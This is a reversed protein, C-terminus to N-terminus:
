TSKVANAPRDRRTRIAKFLRNFAVVEEATAILPVLSRLWSKCSDPDDISLFILTEFDKLFGPIINGQIQDVALKPEPHPVKSVDPHAPDAIGQALPSSTPAERVPAHPIM